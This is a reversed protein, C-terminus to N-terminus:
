PQKADYLRLYRAAVQLEPTTTFLAIDGPRMDTFTEQWVQAGDIFFRVSEGAIVIVLTRSAPTPAGAVKSVAFAGEALQTQKGPQGSSITYGESDLAFFLWGTGPKGTDVIVGYQAKHPGGFRALEVELVTNAGKGGISNLNATMSPPCTTAGSAPACTLRYGDPTFSGGRGSPNAEPLGFPEVRFDRAFRQGAVAGHWPQATTDPLTTALGPAEVKSFTTEGKRAEFKFRRQGAEYAVEWDFQTGHLALATARDLDGPKAWGNRLLTTASRDLYVGWAGDLQWPLVTFPTFQADPTVIEPSGPAEAVARDRGTVRYKYLQLGDQSLLLFETVVTGAKFDFIIGVAYLGPQPERPALAELVNKYDAALQQNTYEPRAVGPTAAPAKTAERTPSPSPAATPTAPPPPTTTPSADPTSTAIAQGTDAPTTAEAGGCAILLSLLAGLLLVRLGMGFRKVTTEADHRAKDM